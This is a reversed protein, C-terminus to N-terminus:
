WISGSVRGTAGVFVTDDVSATDAVWGSGNVHQRAPVPGSGFDFTKM